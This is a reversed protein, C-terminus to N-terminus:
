KQKKEKRFGPVAGVRPIELEGSEPIGVAASTRLIHSFFLFCKLVSLMKQIVFSPNLMEPVCHSHRVVEARPTTQPFATGVITNKAM